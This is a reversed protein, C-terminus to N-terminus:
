YVAFGFVLNSGGPTIVYEGNPLSDEVEVRYLGEEIPTVTLTIGHGQKKSTLVIERRGERSEMRYAELRSVDVSKAEIIFIPSALPTKVPSGAGAVVYTVAQKKGSGKKEETATQQETEVLNDAHVQYLMDPKAPRPKDSAACTLYPKGAKDWLEITKVEKESFITLAHDSGKLIDSVSFKSKM